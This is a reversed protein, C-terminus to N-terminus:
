RFGKKTPGARWLRPALWADAPWNLSPSISWKCRTVRLLGASQQAMSRNRRYIFSCVFGFGAGVLEGLAIYGAFETENTRLVDALSIYDTVCNFYRPSCRTAFISNGLRGHGNTTLIAKTAQPLAVVLRGMQWKSDNTATSTYHMALKGRHNELYPSIVVFSDGLQLGIVTLDGMILPAPDKYVKIGDPQSFDPEYQTAPRKLRGLTASCEIKGNRMRGAEKLYESQFLMDRFYAIEADSCFPYPSANMRALVERSERSSADAETMTQDATQVLRAEARNITITRGLEFGLLTGFAAGVITALLTVLVRWKLNLMM